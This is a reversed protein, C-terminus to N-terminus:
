STDMESKISVECIIPKHDSYVEDLIEVHYDYYQDNNTFVRDPRLPHEKSVVSSPHNGDPIVEVFNYKELLKYGDMFYDKYASQYYDDDAQYQDKDIGLNTDGIVIVTDTTDPKIGITDFIQQLQRSRYRTLQDTIKLRESIKLGKYIKDDYRGGTM